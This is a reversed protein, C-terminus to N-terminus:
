VTVLYADYEAPPITRTLTDREQRKCATYVDVLHDGFVARARASADFAAIAEEWTAPLGPADCEYANGLVPEGPSRKRNLGDLASGLIAALVLYPNVDAGAVRHEIRRADDSGAPVRVAVTRNDYGWTVNAPAHSGTQLRRYSNAHPAFVLMMDPLDNLIGGIAFRLPDAGEPQGNSFINVGAKDTISLHAHLGNGSDEAYPKAMFSAVFGFHQAVRKVIYKFLIADDAAKLPDPTHNINVEFQCPGNESSAAQASIGFADCAAYIGDLVPEFADIESISFTNAKAGGDLINGMPPVFSGNDAYTPTFLYFELEVACVPTLDQKRFADAVVKLANRPDASYPEGTEFHMAHPVIAEISDGLVLAAPGRETPVLVGDLDGTELVHGTGIVDRGWIDLFLTSLPLKLGGSCVAKVETPPYRKGRLVGNLDCIVPKVAKIGLTEDFWRQLDAPNNVHLLSM